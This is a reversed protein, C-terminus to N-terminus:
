SAVCCLAPCCLVACCIDLCSSVRPSFGELPPLTVAEGFIIERGGLLEFGGVLTAITLATKFKWWHGEMIATPTDVGTLVPYSLVVM